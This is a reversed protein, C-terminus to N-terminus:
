GIARTHSVATRLAPSVPIGTGRYRPHRTGDQSSAACLSRFALLGCACMATLQGIMSSRRPDNFAHALEGDREQLLRFVDLYREHHTRSADKLIRQVDELTRKCFRELADAAARPFSWDSERFGHATM